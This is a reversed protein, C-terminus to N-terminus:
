DALVKLFLNTRGSIPVIVSESATPKTVTLLPGWDTLNESIQFSLSSALQSRATVNMGAQSLGNITLTPGHSGSSIGEGEITYCSLMRTSTDVTFFRAKSSPPVSKTRNADFAAVNPFSGLVQSSVISNSRYFLVVENTVSNTTNFLKPGRSVLTFENSVELVMTNSVSGIQAARGDATIWFVSGSLSRGNFVALAVSGDAGYARQYVMEMPWGGFLSPFPLGTDFSWALKMDAGSMRTFTLALLLAILKM